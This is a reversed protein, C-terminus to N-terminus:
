QKVFRCQSCIMTCTLKCPINNYTHMCLIATGVVVICKYTYVPQFWYIYRCSMHMTVQDYFEQEFTKFAGMGPTVTVGDQQFAVSPRPFGRVECRLSLNNGEKLCTKSLSLGIVSIPEPDIFVKVIVTVTAIALKSMGPITIYVLPSQTNGAINSFSASYHASTAATLAVNLTFTWNPSRADASVCPNNHTFIESSPGLNTGNNIWTVNPCPDAIVNVSFNVISGSDKVILVGLDRDSVAGLDAFNYPLVQPLVTPIEFYLLCLIITLLVFSM